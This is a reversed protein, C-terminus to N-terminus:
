SAVVVRREVAGEASQSEAMRRIIGASPDNTIITVARLRIFAIPKGL